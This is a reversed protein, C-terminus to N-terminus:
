VRVELLFGKLYEGEPCYLSVPHDEGATLRRVFAIRRGADHAAAFIVKQFLDLSMHGSCSFTMMLGGPEVLKLAFLNVDKYGRAARDIEARSKAFAPPDCVILGFRERTQRVYSFVDAVTFRVDNKFANLDHNRRAAEIAPTSVDVNEVFSAGGAAAYVGFAGSYSFLNLVRRGSASARALARNDRQDLFFGTKQGAPVDVHFRLGNELITATADGELDREGGAPLPHRALAPHPAGDEWIEPEMPLRELKRAGIDNKFYILRPALEQQLAEVVLPKLRELGENAIEVVVLDDYRDVVLGSLEDGEAHVVRAANTAETFLARRRAIAAAIRARLLEPTLEEEGFTLARLRIQSHTSHFGSALRAGGSDVLDAIAADDPGSEEAIAGAFIWPHRNAVVRERGRKLVLRRRRQPDFLEHM